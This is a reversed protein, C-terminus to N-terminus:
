GKLKVKVSQIAQVRAIQMQEGVEAGTFGKEVISKSTVAKAADFCSRLFEVQPYEINERGTRGRTDATCCILFAELSNPNRWLGLGSFFKEITSAKLEFARHCHLHWRSVKVALDRCENPIRLRACLSEIIKVGREEHARHSPWQSKPTTGKGLDHVLAAFRVSLDSSLICAQDLSMLTHIGTDIEPHYKPTQPVGFLRSIEPFLVALAGVEQLTEFYRRPRSTLLAKQTELWVREPTLDLLEGSDVIQKMLALTEPAVSFNFDALKAMFRAVRLVRLPDEAFADSVHRLKRNELDTQGGMPDILDGDDQMAIANITLDRRLLDQELSVEPDAYFSFGKYGRGTKRETRALAYEEKTEPHLFVPFSQGIPQFKQEVMWEPTAGVVVWDSDYSEIGLLRDRVVGGVLYTTIKQQAM